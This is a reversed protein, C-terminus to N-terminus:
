AADHTVYGLTEVILNFPKCHELFAHLKTPTAELEIVVVGCSMGDIRDINALLININIQLEQSIQSIVPGNVAEGQFFIRLLPKNNAEQSLTNLLCPPLEPSLQACLLQKAPTMPHSFLTNLAVIETIRGADMLAVRHALQKVVDMEHTILVITIGYDRNIKKLLALIAATTEPDLASTAEDCLLVSSNSSLARAIAVRQKQGGSLAAPYANAKPTLEVVDLLETVREHIAQNSIGQIRLPFAINEYVTKAQFLNFHQFIMGIHHRAERLAAPTLALMDTNNVRITGTDPQELLNICRLLTSKGAGSKGIVAFIEGSEISLNIDCLVHHQGYRKNLGTLNIM